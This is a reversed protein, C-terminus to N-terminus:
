GWRGKFKEFFQRISPNKLCNEPSSAVDLNATFIVIFDGFIADASPPPCAFATLLTASIGDRRFCGFGDVM